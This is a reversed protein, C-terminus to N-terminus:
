QAIARLRRRLATKDALNNFDVENIRNIVQRLLHGSKMYNYADEFVSRLCSALRHAEALGIHIKLKPFLQREHLAILPDGTM